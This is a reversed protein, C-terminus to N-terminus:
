EIGLAPEDVPKWIVKKEIDVGRWGDSLTRVALADGTFSSPIEINASGEGGGKGSLTLRELGFIKQGSVDSVLIFWSEQQPKTFKPAYIFNRDTYARNLRRVHVRLSTLSPQSHEVKLRPIAEWVRFFKNDTKHFNAFVEKPLHSDLRDRPISLLQSMSKSAYEHKTGDRKIMGPLALVPNEDPWQAQKICQLISIMAVCAEIYGLQVLTDIYAQILGCVILLVQMIRISSDLITISDNVYDSIPMKLHSLHAQILIFAKVHADGLHVDWDGLKYRTQLSLDFNIQDENHRVPLEDYETAEALLRLLAHLDSTPKIKSCFNRITKHSLYYYSSIKGLPTPILKNKVVQVCQSKELEEVSKSVLDTLYKDISAQTGDELGYYSPNRHLRRYLFTWSLYDM